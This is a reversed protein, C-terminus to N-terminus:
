NHEKRFELKEKAHPLLCNAVVDHGLENLHSDVSGYLKTSATTKKRMVEVPDLLDIGAAQCSERLKRNPQDLDIELKSLGFGKVYSDFVAQDVQYPAPILLFLVPTDHQKFADSTKKLVTATVSWCTSQDNSKMIVPPVYLSSLGLRMRLTELRNKLFVYFQSREEFWENIPKFFHKKWKSASLELPIRFTPARSSQRPPFVETITEICDNGSYVFVIGLDYRERDLEKRAQLYYQNPDWGGVGTNVAELDQGLERSLNETLREIMTEQNEVQFAELFSDGLALIRHRKAKTTSNEFPQNIRYGQDNTFVHVKKEGTNIVMNIRSGHKWGLTDDPIWLRADMLVLQQPGFIRVSLESVFFILSTLLILLIASFVVFRTRSINTSM